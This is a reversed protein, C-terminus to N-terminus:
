RLALAGARPSLLDVSFHTAMDAELAEALAVSFAARSAETDRAGVLYMEIQIPSIAGGDRSGHRATNYGGSFYPEGDPDPQTPGPVTPYGLPELLGGM